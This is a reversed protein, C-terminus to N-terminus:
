TVKSDGSSGGMIGGIDGLDKLLGTMMDAVRKKQHIVSDKTSDYDSQLANLANQM